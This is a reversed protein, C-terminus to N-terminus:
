TDGSWKIVSLWTQSQVATINKVALHYLVCPKAIDCMSLPLLTCALSFFCQYIHAPFGAPTDQPIVKGCLLIVRQNAPSANDSAVLIRKITFFMGSTSEFVSSNKRSHRYRESHFITGLYLFRFHEHVCPVHNVLSRLTDYEECSLSSVAKPSGFMCAGGVYQASQTRPHGLLDLCLEKVKSPFSTSSLAIQLEQSMIVRELIQQPAGKAAKVLKVIQGNGHEFTFASHAWLPGFNRAAQPIHLLQHLNFSMCRQGYLNSARSVSTRLLHEARNIQDLTLSNQLLIFIAESVLAFHRLYRQPLSLCCCPICYYLLWNRWEHAKWYFREKLTRPLRTFHHPPRISLIRRDIVEVVTPRGIYYDEASNSTDFWYETFQRTVGLLVCHMYEVTYGQVLDFQPLRVLPSPGKLGNVPTGLELALRMDRLVGATTREVDPVTDVYLRRGDLSIGCSLCWPCGFFGNFQVSNGVAARAPADACLCITYVKSSVSELDCQWILEGVSCMADVFKGLFLLM